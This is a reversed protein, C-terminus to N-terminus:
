PSKFFSMILETTLKTKISCLGQHDELAHGHLHHALLFAFPDDSIKLNLGKEDTAGAGCIGRFTIAGPFRRLGAPIEGIQCLHIERIRKHIGAMNRQPLKHKVSGYYGVARLEPVAASPRVTTTGAWIPESIRSTGSYTTYFHMTASLRDREFRAPTPMCRNLGSCEVAPGGGGLIGM